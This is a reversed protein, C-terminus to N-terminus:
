VLPLVPLGLPTISEWRARYWCAKETAVRYRRRGRCGDVKMGDRQEVGIAPAVRLGAGHEADRLHHDAAEIREGDQWSISFTRAVSMLTTGVM